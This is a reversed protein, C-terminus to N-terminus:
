EIEESMLIVALNEQTMQQTKIYPDLDGIYM